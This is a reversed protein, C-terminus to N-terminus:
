RHLDRSSGRLTKVMVMAQCVAMYVLMPYYGLRGLMTYALISLVCGTYKYGTYSLLDLTTIEQGPNMQAFMKIGTGIVAVEFTQTGMSWMAMSTLVEPTFSGANGTLFSVLVVFTVCMM